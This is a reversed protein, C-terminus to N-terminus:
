KPTELPTEYFSIENIKKIEGQPFKQILENFLNEDYKMPIIITEKNIKIQDLNEQLIYKSQPSGYKSSEIFMITQAPM